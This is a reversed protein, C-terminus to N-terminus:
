GANPGGADRGTGIVPLDGTWGCIREATDTRQFMDGQALEKTKNQM